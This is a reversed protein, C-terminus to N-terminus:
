TMAAEQRRFLATLSGESPACSLPIKVNKKFGDLFLRNQRSFGTTKAM